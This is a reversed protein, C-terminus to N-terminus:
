PAAAHRHRARHILWRVLSPLYFLSVYVPIALRLHWLLLKESPENHGVVDSTFPDIAKWGTDSTLRSAPVVPAALIRVVALQLDHGLPLTDFRATWLFWTVFGILTAYALRHVFGIVLRSRSM